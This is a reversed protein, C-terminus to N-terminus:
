PVGIFEIKMDGVYMEISENMEVTEGLRDEPQVVLYSDGAEAYLEGVYVGDIHITWREAKRTIPMAPNLNM